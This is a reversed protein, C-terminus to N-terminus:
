LKLSREGGRPRNKKQEFTEGGSTGHAVDRASKKKTIPSEGKKAFVEGGKVNAKPIIDPHPRVSQGSKEASFRIVEGWGKREQPVNRYM